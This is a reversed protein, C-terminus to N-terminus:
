SEPLDPRAGPPLPFAFFPPEVGLLRLYVALQAKHHVEHEVLLWLWAGLSWDVPIGPVEVKERLRDVAGGEAALEEIAALTRARSEDLAALLSARDPEGEGPPPPDFNWEGRFLGAVYAEEVAVVHRLTGAFSMMGEEPRWGLRDDPVLDLTQRTVGRYRELSSLLSELENPRNM